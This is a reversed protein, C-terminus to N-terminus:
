DLKSATVYSPSSVPLTMSGSPSHAMRRAETQMALSYPERRNPMGDYRDLEDVVPKLIHGMSTSVPNDKRCDVGSFLAILSAAAKVYQKITNARLTKCYLSNGNALYNAYMAMQLQGRRTDLLGELGLNDHWKM